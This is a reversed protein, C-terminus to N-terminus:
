RKFGFQKKFDNFQTKLRENSDLKIKWLEIVIVYAMLFFASVIFTIICMRARKPSTRLGKPVAKDIIEITQTDRVEQLKAMEYQPYLNEYTKKLIEVKTQLQSYKQYIDPISDLAIKYNIIDNNKSEFNKIQKLLMKKKFAMAKIESNNEKLFRKTFEYKFDTELFRAVLKSYTELLPTLQKEFKIINNKKQFVKIRETLLEIRNNLENIRTELFKREEKGKTMRYERSYEDLKSVIYNAIRTSLMRDNTTISLTIISTELSESVDLISEKMKRIMLQRNLYPDDNDYEYYELLNFNDIVDELFSRSTIISVLDSSERSEGLINGLNGGILSSVMNTSSSSTSVSRFTSTSTWKAEVLLSYTVVLVSVILLSM